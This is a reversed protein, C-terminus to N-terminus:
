KKFYLRLYATATEEMTFPVFSRGEDPLRLGEVLLRALEEDKEAVAGLAPAIGVPTTVVRCGHGAAEALVYGFSEFDATHLLVKADRMRTLVQPRPLDGVFRVNKSIGLKHALHELKRREPGSGILEAQLNPFTQNILAIVRLWKEWNKVPILSGVGLVDLLREASVATPIEAGNMGWPIVHAARLRTNKEFINNQIDSLAVLRAARDPLLGRLFKRNEPLVDQGMLTTFHPISRRRSVKEGVGSAWGLWFSHIASVDATRFKGFSALKRFTIARCFRMARWLTRPKLWRRNQGNCPFVTAEHWRYPESRFPYELAVIQLDVGRRLLEKALLQMPPICNYDHEDAAFGPTIWLIRM